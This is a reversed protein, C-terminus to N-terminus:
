LYFRFGLSLYWGTLSFNKVAGTSDMYRAGAAKAGGFTNVDKTYALEQVDLVRYGFEFTYTTIDTLLSEVGLSAGYFRGNGTAEVIHNSVGPYSIIKYENRLNLTAAGFFALLYTRYVDSKHLNLEMGVKPAYGTYDSKLSYADASGNKAAVESLIQPKFVEFGFRFSVDPRSYLFGFEGSYNYDVKKDYTISASAENEFAKKGLTSPAGSLSFYSAFSENNINFVRASAPEAALLASLMFFAFVFTSTRKM